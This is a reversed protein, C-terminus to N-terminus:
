EVSVKIGEMIQLADTINALDNTLEGNRGAADGHGAPSPIVQAKNDSLDIKGEYVISPQGNVDNYFPSDNPLDKRYNENYDFSNNVEVRIVIKTFKFGEPVIWEKKFSGPPTAGTMADPLPDNTTPMYMGDKYKIGRKHSWVPLASPRRLNFGGRWRSKASRYTVYVTDIYNGKEDEIWVAIQPILYIKLGAYNYAHRYNKGADLEISIKKNVVGFILVPMITLIVVAIIKKM